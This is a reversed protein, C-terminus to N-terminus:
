NKSCPLSEKKFIKITFTMAEETDLHSEPFGRAEVMDRVEGSSYTSQLSHLFFDLHSRGEESEDGAMERIIYETIYPDADRRLDNLFATGGPRLVRHIEKLFPLPDEWEHMSNVAYVVEFEGSAFPLMGAEGVFLRCVGDLGHNAIKDRYLAQSWPRSCESFLPFRKRKLLEIGIFGFGGNLELAPGRTITRAMSTILEQKYQNRSLLYRDYARATAESQVLEHFPKRQQFIM